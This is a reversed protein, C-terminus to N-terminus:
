GPKSSTLQQTIEKARLEFQKYGKRSAEQQVSALVAISARKDGGFLGLEGQALRAEFQIGPVGIRRAEAAVTDLERKSQTGKGNRLAVRSATIAVALKVTPDQPSLQQAAALEKAAEVPKNLELFCSAILNRSQSEQDKVGEAHFEDAAKRALALAEDAQDQLLKLGALSLQGLAINMKDNIQAALSAGSQYSLEAAALDGQALKTDGMAYFFGVQDSKLGTDQATKMADEINQLAATFNGQMAYLSGINSLARGIGAQDHIARATNLSQRYLRIAAAFDGTLQSEGALNNLLMLAQGQDNIERAEALAEQFSKEAAVHDGQNSYINGINILAGAVDRRSGIKRAFELAQRHLQLGQKPDGQAAAINGLITSSRAVILLDNVPKALEISRQCAARANSADGLNALAECDRWQAEAELLRSGKAKASNAARLASDKEEPFNAMSVAAEAEELDLRPDKSIPGPLKRLMQITKLADNGRGARILIDTARLAYEPNEPYFTWLSQYIGLAKDWDSSIERFRAEVALRDDRSLHTSLVFAQRAAERARDDYGLKEWAEALAAYALAFNPDAKIAQQLVDRAGLSDLSRLREIGEYYLKTAEPTSPTAAQIEASEATSIGPIGLKGRLKVGSMAVIENLKAETGTETISALTEGSATDQIRLDLRVTGGGEKGPAYFSGYVLYDCHLTEHIRQLTESGFTADQRLALDIKARAVNEGPTTIVHNGAELENTVMGSLAESIWDGQSRHTQNTFGLVAVTPRAARTVPQAPKASSYHRIGLGLALLLAATAAASAWKWRGQPAIRSAPESEKRQTQVKQPLAANGASEYLLNFVHIEVGHKVKVLGLDHLAGTWGTLQRLVDTLVKSVLIHGADGCDMVRQAINIGEGAVNQNGNIDTVRYVPGAHMGMRLQIDPRSKLARSIAVACRVPSEPDVFFALAMGDGTPLRILRNDKQASQFEQTGRVIRQLQRLLSQQTDTALRSYGVIDTFLVYSMELVPAQSQDLSQGPGREQQSAKVRELEGRLEVASQHRDAPGKQSAKLLLAEFPPSLNPNLQRPAPPAEHLISDILESPDATTFPPKGTAMEFLVAGASYLDGRVDTAEGRLQEPPMYPLTGALIKRPNDGETQREVVAPQAIALGFDLIKLRGEPTLILNGPKLDRHLIGKEHAAELGAALMSGLRLVEDEALPGDALLERVTKGPIYELVIYDREGVAGFDFVMEIFPHNLKALLQAESRFRRRAEEDSLTGLALVKIAVDRELREDRALYVVGMGGAGIQRTIRYHSILEGIM